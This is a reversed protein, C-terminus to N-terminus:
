YLIYDKAGLMIYLEQLAGVLNNVLIYSSLELLFQIQSGCVFTLCISLCVTSIANTRTLTLSTLSAECTTSTNSVKVREYM